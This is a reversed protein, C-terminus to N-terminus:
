SKKYGEMTSVVQNLQSILPNDGLNKEVEFKIAGIVDDAEDRLVKIREDSDDAGEERLNRVKGSIEKLRNKLDELNVM